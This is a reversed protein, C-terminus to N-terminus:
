NNFREKLRDLNNDIVITGNAIGFNGDSDFGISSMGSTIKDVGHQVLVKELDKLLEKGILNHKKTSVVTTGRIFYKENM